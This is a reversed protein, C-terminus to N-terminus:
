MNQEKKGLVSYKKKQNSFCCRNIAQFKSHLPQCYLDNLGSRGSIFCSSIEWHREVKTFHHAVSTHGALTHTQTHTHTLSLSLSVKDKLYMSSVCKNFCVFFQSWHSPLLLNRHQQCWNCGVDSHKRDDQSGYKGDLEGQLTVHSTLILFWTCLGIM